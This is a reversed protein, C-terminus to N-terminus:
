FFASFHFLRLHATHYNSYEDKFLVFLKAGGSTPTQMLGCVDSHILEGIDTVIRKGPLFPLKHMKGLACGQCIEKPAEDKGKLTIGKVAKNSIMRQYTQYNVHAKRRHWKTLPVAKLAITDSTIIADISKEIPQPRKSPVRWIKFEYLTMGSREGTMITLNNLKVAVRNNTFTVEAGLKTMAAISVLNVGLQPVHLLNKLLRTNTIRSVKSEIRIDGKGAVPLKESGFEDITWMREPILQYNEFASIDEPM